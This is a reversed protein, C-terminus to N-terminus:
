GRFRRLALLGMVGALLQASWTPEPVAIAVNDIIPQGSSPDLGLRVYGKASTAASLFVQAETGDTDLDVSGVNSFSSGDTSFDVMVTSTGSYTKGGFTLGWNDGTTAAPTLDAEFVISAASPATLSLKQTYAQGEARLTSLADFSNEGPAQAPGDLNEQLSGAKPLVEESGSGASVSTSGFSGNMYMTGYSASETGAGFTPDYDSYNAGLTNTYTSGDTSLTGDGLYQSFDWGAVTTEVAAATGAALAPAVLISVIALIRIKM